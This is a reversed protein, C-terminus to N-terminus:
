ARRWVTLFDHLGFWQPIDIEQVLRYREHLLEFFRDDATCGYRGEGIYCVHEGTHLELADAAWSSDYTPWCLFLTWRERGDRLADAPGGDAVPLWTHSIQCNDSPEPFRDFPEVTAGHERLLSAWYGSGAGVEVVPSLAAIAAIAEDNPIAWAFKQVLETRALMLGTFGLINEPSGLTFGDAPHEGGLLELHQAQYDNVQL